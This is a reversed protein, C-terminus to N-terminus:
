SGVNFTTRGHAMGYRNPTGPPANFGAQQAVANSNQM